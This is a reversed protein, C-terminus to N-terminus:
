CYNSNSTSRYLFFHSITIRFIQLAIKKGPDNAEAKLKKGESFAYAARGSKPMMEKTNNAGQECGAVFYEITELISSNQGIKLEFREVGCQLADLFTRDGFEALGYMQVANIGLKIASLWFQMLDESSNVAAASAQLFISLLSGMSGGMNKQLIESLEHLMVAPHAVNIENNNLARLISRAGTAVM